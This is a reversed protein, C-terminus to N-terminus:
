FCGIQRIFTLLQSNLGRGLGCGSWPESVTVASEVVLLESWRDLFGSAFWWWKSDSAYVQLFDM